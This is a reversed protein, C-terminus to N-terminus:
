RCHMLRNKVVVCQMAGCQCNNITDSTHDIPISISAPTCVCAPPAARSEEIIPASTCASLVGFLTCAGSLRLAHCKLRM